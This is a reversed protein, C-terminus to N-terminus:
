FSLGVAARIADLVRMNGLTDQTTVRPPTSDFVAAAFDDAEMGYLPAPADFSRTQPGTPPASGRKDQRPPTMRAITFQAGTAPPKWPIPIEIYGETGCIFAAILSSFPM